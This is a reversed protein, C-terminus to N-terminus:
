WPPEEGSPGPSPQPPAPANARKRIFEGVLAPKGARLYELFVRDFEAGGSADCVGERALRTWNEVFNVCANMNEECMSKFREFTMPQKSAKM